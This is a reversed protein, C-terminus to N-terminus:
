LSRCRSKTLCSDIALNGSVNKQCINQFHRYFLFKGLIKKTSNYLDSSIAKTSNKYSRKKDFYKINIKNNVHVAKDNVHAM